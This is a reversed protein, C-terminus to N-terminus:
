SIKVLILQFIQRKQTFSAVHIWRTSWEVESSWGSNEPLCDSSHQWVLCFTPLLSQAPQLSVLSNRGWIITPLANHDWSRKADNTQFRTALETVYSSQGVFNSPFVLCNHTCKLRFTFNLSDKGDAFAVLELLESFLGRRLNDFLHRRECSDDVRITIILSM